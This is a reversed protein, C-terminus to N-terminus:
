GARAGEERVGHREALAVLCGRARCLALDGLAARCVAAEEHLTPARPESASPLFFKETRVAAAPGLETAGNPDGEVGAAAVLGAWDTIFITRRRRRVLGARRLRAVLRSAVEPVMGVRAALEAITADVLVRAGDTQRVCAREVLFRAVRQTAKHFVVDDHDVLTRRYMRGLMTVAARRARPNGDLCSWLADRRIVFFEGRRAVEADHPRPLGDIAGPLGVCDGPGFFEHIVERGDESRTVTKVEGSVVVILEQPDAGARWFVHRRARVSCRGLVMFREVEADPLVALFDVRRLAEILLGV